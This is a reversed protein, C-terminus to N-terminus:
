ALNDVFLVLLRAPGQVGITLSLEIDATRSPGTVLTAYGGGPRIAIEKLAVAAEELTEVLDGTRCIVVNALSLLGVSRAALSEEALLVSGTEAVALKALSVGLPVDRAETPDAPSSWAIGAADLTAILAPAADVLESSISLAPAELESRLDNLRAAADEATTVRDVRIGVAEARTTFTILLRELTQTETTAL